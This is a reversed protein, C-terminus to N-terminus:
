LLAEKSRGLMGLALLAFSVAALPGVVGLLWPPDPLTSRVAYLMHTLAVALTGLFLVGYLHVSYLVSVAVLGMALIFFLLTLVTALNLGMGLVLWLPVALPPLMIAGTVWVPLRNRAFVEEYGAILFLFVGIFGAEAVTPYMLNTKIILTYAYWFTNALTWSVAAFAGHILLADRSWRFYAYLCVVAMSGSTILQTYNSIDSFGPFSHDPLFLVVAVLGVSVALLLYFFAVLLGHRGLPSSLREM